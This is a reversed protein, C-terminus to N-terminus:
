LFDLLEEQEQMLREAYIFEKSNPKNEMYIKEIRENFHSIRLMDLEIMACDRDHYKQEIKDIERQMNIVHITQLTTLQNEVAFIGELAYEIETLRTRKDSLSTLNKSFLSSEPANVSFSIKRDSSLSYM